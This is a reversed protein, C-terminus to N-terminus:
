GDWLPLGAMASVLILGFAIRRFAAPSALPYLLAGGRIALAYIPAIAAGSAVAEATFLGNWLFLAGGLPFSAAFLAIINARLREAAAERGLYFVVPAVGSLGAVGGGFGSLFGVGTEAAPPLPGTWRWGAALAGIVALAALCLGWRLADPEATTLAWVGAPVGFVLGLGLRAVERPACHRLGWPLLSLAGVADAIWLTILATQPGAVAASAPMFVLAAGFGSFGRVLGALAACVAMVPFAPSAAAQELAAIVGEM